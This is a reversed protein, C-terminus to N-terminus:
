RPSLASTSSVKTKSAPCTPSSTLSTTSPTPSSSMSASCPWTSTRQSPLTQSSRPMGAGFRFVLLPTQSSSPASIDGSLCWTQSLLLFGWFVGVGCGQLMVLIFFLLFPQLHSVPRPPCLSITFSSLFTLGVHLFARHSLQAM